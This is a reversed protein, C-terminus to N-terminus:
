GVCKLSFIIPVKAIPTQNTKRENVKVMESVKDWQNIVVVLLASNKNVGPTYKGNSWQVGGGSNELLMEFLTSWFEVEDKEGFMDKKKTVPLKM